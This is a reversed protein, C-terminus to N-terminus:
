RKSGGSAHKAQPQTAFTATGEIFNKGVEDAAEYNEILARQRANLQVAQKGDDTSVPQPMRAGMLVYMVDVGVEAVLMLYGADPVSVGNEYNMQTFRTVKGHTAFKVQSMALRM